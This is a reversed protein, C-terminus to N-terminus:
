KLKELLSARGAEFLRNAQEHTLKPRSSPEMKTFAEYEKDPTMTAPVQTVVVPTTQQLVPSSPTEQKFFSANTRKWETLFVTLLEESGLVGKEKADEFALAAVKPDIAGMKTVVDRVVGLNQLRQNQETLGKIQNQFSALQEEVTKGEPTLGSYKKHLDELERIREKRAMSERLVLDYKSKEVTEEPKPETITQQAEVQPEPTKTEEPM